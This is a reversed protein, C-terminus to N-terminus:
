LRAAQNQQQAFNFLERVTRFMGSLSQGFQRMKKGLHEARAVEASRRIGIAKTGSYNFGSLDFARSTTNATM